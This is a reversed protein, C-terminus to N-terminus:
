SELSARRALEARVLRVVFPARDNPARSAIDRLRQEPLRAVESAHIHQAAFGPVDVPRRGLRYTM